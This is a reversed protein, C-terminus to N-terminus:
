LENLIARTSSNFYPQAFEYAESGDLLFRKKLEVRLTLYAKFPGKKHLIEALKETLSNRAIAFLMRPDETSINEIEFSQVAGKLGKKREKIKMQIKKRLKSALERKFAEKLEEKARGTVNKRYDEIAQSTYLPTLERYYKEVRPNVLERAEGSRPLAVPKKRRPPPVPKPPVYKAPELPKPLNEFFIGVKGPIRKRKTRIPADLLTKQFSNELILKPNFTKVM